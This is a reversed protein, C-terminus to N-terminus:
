RGGHHRGTDPKKDPDEDGVVKIAAISDLLAALDDIKADQALKGEVQRRWV